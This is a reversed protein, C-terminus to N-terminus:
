YVECKENFTEANKCFAFEPIPKILEDEDQVLKSQNLRVSIIIPALAMFEYFTTADEVVYNLVLASNCFSHGLM